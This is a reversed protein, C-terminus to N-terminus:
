FTLNVGVSPMFPLQNVKEQTVRDVYFINKRNYLNTAGVNVELTSNESVAFKKKLNADLRHYYPLFGANLDGYLIGM